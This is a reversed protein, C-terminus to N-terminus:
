KQYDETKHLVKVWSPMFSRKKTDRIQGVGHKVVM